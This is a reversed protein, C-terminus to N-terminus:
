APAHDGAKESKVLMYGRLALAARAADPSTFREPRKGDVVGITIGSRYVVVAHAGDAAAYVWRNVM